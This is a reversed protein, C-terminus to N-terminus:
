TSRPRSAPSFLCCCDSSLLSHHFQAGSNAAIQQQDQGVLLAGDRTGGGTRHAGGGALRPAHDAPLDTAVEGIAAAPERARGQFVGQAVLAVGAIAGCEVCGGHDVTTSDVALAALFEIEQRKVVLVGGDARLPCHSAIGVSFAGKREPRPPTRRAQGLSVLSCSWNRRM